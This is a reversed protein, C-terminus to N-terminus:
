YQREQDVASSLVPACVESHGLMCMALDAPCWAGGRLPMDPMRRRSDFGAFRLFQQQGVEPKTCHLLSSGTILNLVM